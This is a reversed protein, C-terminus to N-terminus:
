HTLRVSFGFTHSSFEDKERNRRFDSDEKDTYTGYTYNFSIGFSWRRSFWWDKGVEFRFMYNIFAQDGSFDYDYYDDYSGHYDYFAGDLGIGITLGVLLGYAPNEKDQIPYFNAGFGFLFKLLNADIKFKDYQDKNKYEYSGSGYGIGIAGFVSAINAISGGLRIEGYPLYGYAKHEVKKSDYSKIRSDNLYIFSLSPSFYFGKHAHMYPDNKQYKPASYETTSNYTAQTTYETQTNYSTGSGYEAGANYNSGSDFGAGSNYENGYQAFVCSASLLLSAIIKNRM